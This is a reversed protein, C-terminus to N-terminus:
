KGDDFVGKNRVPLQGAATAQELEDVDEQTLHPPEHMAQRIVAPSGAQLSSDGPEVIVNVLLGEVYPLVEDLEIIKGRAVGKYQMTTVEPLALFM